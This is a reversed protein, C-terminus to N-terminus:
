LKGVAGQNENQETRCGVYVRNLFASPVNESRLSGTTNMKGVSYKVNRFRSLMRIQIQNPRRTLLSASRGM